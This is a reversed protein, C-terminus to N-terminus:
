SLEAIHVTVGMQRLRIPISRDVGSDTVVTQIQNINAIHAFSRKNFKSSDCVAITENAMSIMTQNINAEEIDPTSVGSTLNFSDIGLFLKDCYLNKLTAEALPGVISHSNARLHGGLLIVSFRNYRLAELAINVANTIITLRQFKDLNRVIQLTTTGADVMITEGDHILKAAAKGIAQKERFNFLQKHEITTDAGGLTTPVRMAGGRTRILLNRQQLATLDKRITVESTELLQALRTVSLVQNDALHKLILARRETIYMIYRIEKRSCLYQKKQM